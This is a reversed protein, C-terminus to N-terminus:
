DTIVNLACTLRPSPFRFTKGHEKVADIFNVGYEGYNKACLPEIRKLARDGEKLLNQAAKVMGVADDDEADQANLLAVNGKEVIERFPATVLREADDAM